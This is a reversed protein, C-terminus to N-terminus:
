ILDYPDVDVTWGRPLIKLIHEIEEPLRKQFKILIQQYHYNRKQSIFPSSPGIVKLSPACHSSLAHYIKQSEQQVIEKDLNRYLLRILRAFPPFDSKQRHIIETSFFKAYNFNALNKLIQNEPLHTQIIGEKAIRLFKYFFQFTKEASRFDPFNLSQDADIIGVLHIPPFNFKLAFNTAIAIDWNHDFPKNINKEIRVTRVKPWFDHLMKELSKTTIGFSRLHFSQCQPCQEIIPWDKECHRCLMKQESLVLPLRCQPCFKTWGCNSCGFKSGDGKRNLVLLIKQKQVMAEEIKNRLPLSLAQREFNMDVLAINPRTKLDKELLGNNKVAEFYTEIRPTISGIVLRATTLKALEEAVSVVHFRPMQDNKYTENEEQDIILLGLNNVPAFLASNSGVVISVEGRRIKDWEQWRQTHSLGAHLISIRNKIFKAFFPVLNLDPVLILVQKGMELTKKIMQLYFKLRTSFNTVILYKKALRSSSKIIQTNIASDQKKLIRKAPPVINEFLCKSFPALYYNAMWRALRIHIEDVVPMFDIITIIPKLNKIASSRKIAVVIGEIKRNNFPVLVLIGIKIDPLIAPPIAYDFVGEGGTRVKPVIQAIQM